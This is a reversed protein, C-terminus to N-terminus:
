LCVRDLAQQLGLQKPLDWQSMLAQDTKTHLILKTNYNQYRTATTCRNKPCNLDIAIYRYLYFTYGTFIHPVM